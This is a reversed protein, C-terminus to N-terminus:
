RYEIEVEEGHQQHRSDICNLTLTLGDEQLACDVWGNPRGAEFVYATPPLNVLHLGDDRRHHEWKHSHGYFVAKVQQRASLEAFFPEADRLGWDSGDNQVWDFNHHVLVMVPKEDGLEDLTEGLWTRQDAGLEGWVVETQILSDLLLWNARPTEVVTIHKGEVPPTEPAAAVGAEFFREVHDHNGMICHVPVGKELLPLVLSQFQFYDHKLGVSYAVDGCVMTNGPLGDRQVQEVCRRLYASMNIGDRGATTAPNRDIHTDSFLAVRHPDPRVVEDQAWSLSPLAGAGAFAAARQLFRRRSIPPLTIPM